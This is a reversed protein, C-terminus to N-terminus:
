TITLPVRERCLPCADPEYSEMEVETAAFFPLGFDVRGGSRDVVVAVGVDRSVGPVRSVLAIALAALVIAM